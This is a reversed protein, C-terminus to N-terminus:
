SSFILYKGNYRHFELINEMIFPRFTSESFKLRGKKEVEFAHPALFLSLKGNFRSSVFINEM